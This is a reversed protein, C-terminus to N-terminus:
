INLYIWIQELDTKSEYMSIWIRDLDMKFRGLDSGIPNPDCPDQILDLGNGDRYLGSTKCNFYWITASQAGLFHALDFYNLIRIKLGGKIKHAASIFNVCFCESISLNSRIERREGERERMEGEEKVWQSEIEREREFHRLFIIKRSRTRLFLGNVKSQEKNM